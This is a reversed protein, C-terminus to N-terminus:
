LILLMVGCYGMYMLVLPIFKYRPTITNDEFTRMVNQCGFRVVDDLVSIFATSTYINISQDCVFM